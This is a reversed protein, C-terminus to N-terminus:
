TRLALHPLMGGQRRAGRLALTRLRNLDTLILSEVCRMSGLRQAARGLHQAPSLTIGSNPAWHPTQARQWNSPVLM